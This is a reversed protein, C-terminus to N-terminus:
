RFPIELNGLGTIRSGKTELSSVILKIVMIDMNWKVSLPFMADFCTEFRLNAAFLAGAKSAIGCVEKTAFNIRPHACLTLPVNSIRNTPPLQRSHVALCPQARSSFSKRSAVNVRSFAASFNERLSSRPITKRKKKKKKKKGGGEFCGRGDSEVVKDGGQKSRLSTFEVRSFRFSGVKYM